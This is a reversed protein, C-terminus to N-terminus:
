FFCGWKGTLRSGRQQLQLRIPPLLQQLFYIPPLSQPLFSFILELCSLTHRPGTRQGTLCPRRDLAWFRAVRSKIGWACLRNKGFGSPCKAQDKERPPPSLQHGMFASAASAASGQTDASPEQDAGFVGEQSLKEKRARQSSPSLWILEAEFGVPSRSSQPIM